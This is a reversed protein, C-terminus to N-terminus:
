NPSSGFLTYLMSSQGLKSKADMCLGDAEEEKMDTTRCLGMEECHAQLQLRSHLSETWSLEVEPQQRLEM